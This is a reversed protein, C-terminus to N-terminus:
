RTVGARSLVAVMAEDLQSAPVSATSARAILVVDWGGWPGKLRRVASRMVRKCRNRLVAGGLRKGAIFAVRGDQGRGDPTRSVLVIILPDIARKAGRFVADIERSSKITGM